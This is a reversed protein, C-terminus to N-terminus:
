FDGAEDKGQTDLQQQDRIYRRYLNPYGMMGMLFYPVKWFLQYLM